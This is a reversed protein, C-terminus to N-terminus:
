QERAEQKEGGSSEILVAVVSAIWEDRQRMREVRKVAYLVSTHDIGLARGIESSSMRTCRRAVFCVLARAESVPKSRDRSLVSAPEIGFALATDRVIANVANTRQLSFAVLAAQLETM